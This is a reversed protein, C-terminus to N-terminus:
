SSRPKAKMLDVEAQLAAMRTFQVDLTQQMAELKAEIRDLRSMRSAPGEGSDGEDPGGPTQKRPM